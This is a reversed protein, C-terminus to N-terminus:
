LKFEQSIRLYQFSNCNEVEVFLLDGFNMRFMVFDSQSHFVEFWTAEFEDEM